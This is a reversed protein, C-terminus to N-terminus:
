GDYDEAATDADAINQYHIGKNLLDRDATPLTDLIIGDYVKIITDDKYLVVTNNLSKMYYGSEDPTKGTRTLFVIFFLLLVLFISIFTLILSTKITSHM